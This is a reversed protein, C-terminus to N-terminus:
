AGYAVFIVRRSRPHTCSEFDLVHSHFLRGDLCLLRNYKMSVMDLLIWKSRDNSDMTLKESLEEPRWQFRKLTKFVAKYDYPSELGTEKHRFIGTGGHCEEPENLYLIFVKSIHADAHINWLSGSQLIEDKAFSRYTGSGSKIHWKFRREFLNELRKELSRAYISRPSVAIHSGDKKQIRKAKSFEKLMLQPKRLFDDYVLLPSNM